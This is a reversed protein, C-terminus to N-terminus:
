RKTKKRPKPKAKKTSRAREPRPVEHKERYHSRSEELKQSLREIDDKFREESDFRQATSLHGEAGTYNGVGFCAVAKGLEKQITYSKEYCRMCLPKEFRYTYHIHSRRHKREYDGCLECFVDSCQVCERLRNKDSLHASCNPCLRPKGSPVKVSAAPGVKAELRRWIPEREPEPELREVRSPARQRPVGVIPRSPQSPRRSSGIAPRNERSERRKRKGRYEQLLDEIEQDGAM